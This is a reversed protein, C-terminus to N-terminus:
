GVREKEGARRMFWRIEPQWVSFAGGGVVLVGVAGMLTALLVPSNEGGMARVLIMALVFGASVRPAIGLAVTIGAALEILRLVIGAGAASLLSFSVSSNGANGSLVIGVTGLRIVGVIVTGRLLIPLWRLLILKLGKRVTQYGASIPDIVGSVVLWDRAFGIMLPVALLIGGLTTLPPHLVPILIISLAGMQLGALPRRSDSQPLPYTAKHARKRAWLGLIFAYRALGVPLYWIPLASYHIAVAVATLLGLADFEIDLAEGLLTAHDSIRALYGDLFDALDAFVYIVAPTWALMGTPRPIVLFGALCALLWGRLFTTNTGAGFEPLLATETPRHNRGLRRAVFAGQYLWIALAAAAWVIGTGTRSGSAVSIGAAAIAMAGSITRNRWRRHLGALASDPTM